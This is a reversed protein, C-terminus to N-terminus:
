SAKGAPEATANHSAEQERLTRLIWRLVYSRGRSYEKKKADLWALAERDLGLGQFVRGDEEPVAPPEGTFRQDQRAGVLLARVVYERSRDHLRGVQDLWELDVKTLQM